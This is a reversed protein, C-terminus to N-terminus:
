NEDPAFNTVAALEDAVQRDSRCRPMKHQGGWQGHFRLWHEFVGPMVLRVVPASLEGSARLTAYPGPRQRLEADLETALSPGLPTAVTGPHLEIWWEHRLGASWSQRSGRVALPAVHFNAIRWGSRRCVNVLAETLARETVNERVSNLRLRTSGVHLLRPPETSTFRVVDELVYRALGAPTTLVVVYDVGSAVGALPVAKTGLTEVSGADFDAVPLFEFFVGANTILRLSRDTDEDQTAIVAESAAYVEHFKVEPGLAARVEDLYPGLPAGTHVCGALNPWCERLGGRGSASTKTARARIEPLVHALWNPLGSVVRIDRPLVRAAFADLAGDGDVSTNLGPEYARQAAWKPLHLAALGSLQGQHIAPGGTNELATLNAPAGCLLHRGQFLEASGTRAAFQLLAAFGAEQFHRLLAPTVPLLKPEGTSTGSSLGFLACTGPWLVDREGRKVREVVPALAEYTQLPVRERFTAYSTHPEIGIARGHSTRGLQAVLNQWAATQQPIATHRRRRQWQALALQARVRTHYLSQPWVPM